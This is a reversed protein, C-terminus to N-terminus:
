VDMERVLQLIFEYPLRTAKVLARIACDSARMKNPNANYNVYYKNGDYELLTNEQIDSFSTM